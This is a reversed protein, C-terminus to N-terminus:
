LPEIFEEGSFFGGRILNLLLFYYHFVMYRECLGPRLDDGFALSWFVGHSDVVASASAVAWLSNGRDLLDFFLQWPLESVVQHSVVIGGSTKFDGDPGVLGGYTLSTLALDCV